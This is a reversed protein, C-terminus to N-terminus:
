MQHPEQSRVEKITKFWDEKMFIFNLVVILILVMGANFAYPLQRHNNFFYKISYQPVFGGEMYHICEFYNGVTVTSKDYILNRQKYSIDKPFILDGNEQKPLLSKDYNGNCFHEYIDESECWNESYTIVLKIPDGISCPSLLHIKNLLKYDEKIDEISSSNFLQLSFALLGSIVIIKAFTKNSDFLKILFYIFSFAM